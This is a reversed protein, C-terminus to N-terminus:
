PPDQVAPNSRNQGLVSACGGRGCSRHDLVDVRWGPSYAGNNPGGEVVDIFDVRVRLREVGDIRATLEVTRSDSPDCCVVGMSAGPAMRSALGHVVLDGGFVPAATVAGNWHLDLDSLPMWTRGYVNFSSSTTGGTADLTVRANPPPGAYTDTVTTLRVHEIDPPRIQWIPSTDNPNYFGVSRLCQGPYGNLYNPVCRTVFRLTLTVDDLQSANDFVFTNCGPAGPTNLNIDLLDFAIETDSNLGGAQTICRAGDPSRLELQPAVPILFNESDLLDRLLQPWQSPLSANSPRFKVVARLTRISPDLEADASSFLAPFEFDDLVLEHVFESDSVRVITRDPDPYACVFATCGNPMTPRAVPAGPTLVASPDDWDGSASRALGSVANVEVQADSITLLQSINFALADINMRHTVEIRGGNLQSQLISGPSCDGPLAMLDFTSTLGGNPSGSSFNAQCLRQGAANRVLFRTQRNRLLNNPTTESETGTLMVRLSRIPAQGQTALVLDYRRQPRCTTVTEFDSTTPYGLGARCGFPLTIPNGPINRNISVVEVGTPVATQQYVAPHPDVADPGAGGPWAPCIAVRGALHRLATWGNIVISTGAQQPDCLQADPDGAVASGAVGTAATWGRPAGFVYSSGPDGFVLQTGEFAYIGPTFHFTKNRCSPVSGDLLSSLAATAAGDFTAPSFTVVPGAPCNTPVAPTPPNPAAVLGAGGGGPDGSLAAVAPDGCTPSLDADDVRGAGGGPDGALLGCGDPTPSLLGRDGQAYQGAVEFAPSGSVPNRLGAAGTRVSVGSEFRLAEHGGHILSTRSSSLGGPLSGVAAAWPLCGQATANAACDTSWRLEGQYGDRGVVRVQDTAGGAGAVPRCEVQVAVDDGAAATGQDFVQEGLYPQTLPDCPQTRMQNIATDIAADAARAERDKVEAATTVRMTVTLLGFLGGIVLTTFVIVALVSILASGRQGDVRSSTRRARASV